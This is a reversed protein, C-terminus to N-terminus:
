VELDLMEFMMLSLEVIDISEQRVNSDTINQAYISFRDLQLINIFYITREDSM